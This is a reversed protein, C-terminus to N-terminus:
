QLGQIEFTYGLLALLVASADPRVFQLEIVQRRGPDLTWPLPPAAMRLESIGASSTLSIEDLAVNIARDGVNVIEGEIVVADGDRSVFADTVAVEVQAAGPESVGPAEYPIAFSAQEPAAASIVTWILRPGPMTSPVIYGASGEGSEGPAITSDLVGREGAASAVPSILYWNGASDQLRMTLAGVDLASSGTNEISFEILYYITEPQLGPADSVSYGQVVAIQADGLPVLHGPEALTGAPIPAETEAEYEATAVQWTDSDQEVILTLRPRRQELVEPTNAAVQRRESVRFVLQAGSSLHLAVEDGPALNSFEEIADETPSLGIVYNVVTGCFWVSAPAYSSPYTWDGQIEVPLVSLTQTGLTLSVPLALPAESDGSSVIAECSTVPPPLPSISVTPTVSVEEAPMSTPTIEGRFVVRQLLLIIILVAAVSLLIVGGVVPILIPLSRISPRKPAPPEQQTPM